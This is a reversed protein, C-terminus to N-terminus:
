KSVEKKVFDFASAQTDIIKNITKDSIVDSVNVQELSGGNLVNEVWKRNVATNGTNIKKVATQPTQTNM